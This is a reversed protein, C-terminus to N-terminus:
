SRFYRLETCATEIRNFRGDNVIKWTTTHRYWWAVAEANENSPM